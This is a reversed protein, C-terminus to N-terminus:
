PRHAVYSLRDTVAAAALQSATTSTVALLVLSGDGSGTLARSRPVAIVRAASAVLRARGPGAAGAALVDVVDGPRLLAAAEDDGLRLPAAVLDRPLGRLSSPGAFRVDTLVEGRRVAGTVVRGSTTSGAGLAGTPLAAAPLRAPRVDDQTLVTGAPLDRAATLVVSGAPAGPDLAHLAFALSGAMLGAALLRRRWAVARRLERLWRDVGGPPQEPLSM